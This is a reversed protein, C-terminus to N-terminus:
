EVTELGLVSQCDPITLVLDEASISDFSMLRQRKAQLDQQLVQQAGFITRVDGFLLDLREAAPVGSCFGGGLNLEGGCTDHELVEGTNGADHVERGHTFGNNIKAAVRVFDVWERGSLEHDVVRDNSIEKALWIRKLAVNVNFIFAVALAVLEQAPTLRGEIVELNHRGPCTDDVLDVDFVEGLDGVGLVDVANSLSEGVGTHSSVGVGRHNISETDEPPTHATDLGLSRHETLRHRHQNRPNDTELEASRDGGANGGGIDHEGDRLHEPLM